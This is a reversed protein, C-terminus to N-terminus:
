DTENCKFLADAALKIANPTEKNLDDAKRSIEFYVAARYVWMKPDNATKPHELAADILRKCERIDKVANPDTDELVMRVTEVKSSQANLSISIFLIGFALFFKLNLIVKKMNNIM